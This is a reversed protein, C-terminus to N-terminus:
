CKTVRIQLSTEKWEEKHAYDACINLIWEREECTINSYRFVAQPQRCKLYYVSFVDCLDTQKEMINQKAESYCNISKKLDEISKHIIQKIESAKENFAKSIGNEVILQLEKQYNQLSQEVDKIRKEMQKEKRKSKSPTKSASFELVLNGLEIALSLPANLFFTVAGIISTIKSAGLLIDHLGINSATRNSMFDNKRMIDTTCVNESNDVFQINLKDALEKMKQKIEKNIELCCQERLQNFLQQVINQFEDNPANYDVETELSLRFRQFILEINNSIHENCEQTLHLINDGIIGDQKKLKKITDGANKKKVDISEIISYCDKYMPLFLSIARYIPIGKRTRDFIKEIASPFDSLKLLEMRQVFKLKHNKEQSVRAAYAHVMYFPLIHPLSFKELRKLMENKIDLLEQKSEKWRNAFQSINEVNTSKDNILICTPKDYRQIENWFQITSDTITDETIVYCVLDVYKIIENTKKTDEAGGVNPASLGPTDVIRVGQQHTETMFRTTRQTGKGILEEGCGSLLYYLTSKGAKTRGVFAISPMENREYSNYVQTLNESSKKLQLIEQVLDCKFCSIKDCLQELCLNLRQYLERTQNVFLNQTKYVCDLLLDNRHYIYKIKWKQFISPLYSRNVFLSKRNINKKFKKISRKVLKENIKINKFVKYMFDREQQDFDGDMCLLTTMKKNMWYKTHQNECQLLAVLQEEDKIEDKELIVNYARNLLKSNFCLLKRIYKLQESHVCCRNNKLTAFAFLLLCEKYKM